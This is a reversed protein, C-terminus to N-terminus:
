GRFAAGHTCFSYASVRHQLGPENLSSGWLHGVFLGTHWCVHSDSIFDALPSCNQECQMDKLRDQSKYPHCRNAQGVKRQSLAEEVQAPQFREQGRM